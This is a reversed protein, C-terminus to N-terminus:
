SRGYRDGLREGDQAARADAESLKRRRYAMAPPAPLIGGAVQLHDGDACIEATWLPGYQALPSLLDLPPGTRSARGEPRRRLDSGRRRARLSVQQGRRTSRSLLAVLPRSAGM